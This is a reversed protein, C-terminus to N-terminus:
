SNLTAIVLDPIHLIDIFAYTFTDQEWYCMVYFDALQFNKRFFDRTQHELGM